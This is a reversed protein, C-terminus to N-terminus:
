ERDGMYSGSSKLTINIEELALALRHLLKDHFNTKPIEETLDPRVLKAVTAASKHRHESMDENHLSGIVRGNTGTEARYYYSRGMDQKRLILLM